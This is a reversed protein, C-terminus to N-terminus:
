GGSAGAVPQTEEPAAPAPFLDDGLERVLVGYGSTGILLKGDVVQAASLDRAPVPVSIMRFK